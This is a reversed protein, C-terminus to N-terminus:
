HAYKPVILELMAKAEKQLTPDSSLIAGVVGDANLDHSESVYWDGQGFSDQSLTVLAPHGAVTTKVEKQDDLKDEKAMESPVLNDYESLIIQNGDADKYTCGPGASDPFLRPTQHWITKLQATSILDCIAGDEELKPDSPSQPEDSPEDSSPAESSPADSSPVDSPEDSASSTPVSSGSPQGSPNTSPVKSPTSVAPGAFSATGETKTACGALLACAALGALVFSGRKDYM